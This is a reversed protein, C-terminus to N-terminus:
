EEHGFTEAQNFMEKAAANIISVWLEINAQSSQSIRGASVTENFLLYLLTKLLPADNLRGRGPNFHQRYLENIYITKKVPEVNVFDSPAMTTWVVDIPDSAKSKANQEVTRKISRAIGKGPDALPKANGSRKNALKVVGKADEYVRNLDVKPDNLDYLEKAFRHFSEKFLVSGKQPSITIYEEILRPDSIEIRLLQLDKVESRFKGWGGATILRDADYIYFGQHGTPSKKDLHFEEKQSRPTWIHATIGPAGPIGKYTLERPYKASGSKTYGLPNIPKPSPTKMPSVGLWSTYLEIAIRGDELFRHYRISVHKRVAELESSLNEEAKELDDGKYVNILDSWVITTGHDALGLAERSNWYKEASEASLRGADFTEKLLQIGHGQAGEPKSVIVTQNANAFSGEKLGMGYRGINKESHAEHGGLRLVGEMKEPSMGSGDDHIAIHELRTNGNHFVITVRTAGADIANDILEDIGTELGHNAGLAHNINALPPLTVTSEIDPMLLEDTPM